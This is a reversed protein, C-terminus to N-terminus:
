EFMELKLLEGEPIEVLTRRGLISSLLAPSIGTGPRKLETMSESLLTGKPIAQAAIVSRRAVRATDEESPRRRKEGDGLASEVRRISKILEKLEDPLLSAKHDPGPLERDVTFHKEILVAGLAVAAPSLDIGETHDSYGIPLNFEDHMTRIARLNLDSPDAPYNSVCHLLVIAENGAQRAAQVAERVDQLNAMGTSLIVPKSKQAVHRILPLNTLDGSSIKFAAVGLEELFDAAAEDFPTSLFTIGKQDCYQKLEYHAETSLELKRLMELQSEGASTSNLQYQAKPASATVLTEAKFTQFKVANAKAEVAIDVLRRALVLDGNHNVGAEAIVYVPQGDGILENGIKIQM